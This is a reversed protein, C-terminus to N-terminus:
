KDGMLSELRAFAQRYELETRFMDAEMKARASTIDPDDSKYSAEVVHSASVMRRALQSLTRSRDLEYYSDKVQAAVKAKTASVGLNAAEAQASAEKVGHERKFGDFITWSGMLGIYSADHPFVIDNIVSQNTYGGIIAVSPFYAMKSLKAGATAKIVTQEAEIVDANAAAAKDAVEQLSLHEVLPEPPFLELRTGEPLGLMEALSATLERVKSPPLAVSKEASIKGTEQETSILPAGSNSAVLGKAQIKRADAEAGILEREAALLEFYITEVKSATEAVPMGAKAKAINEDARAVRVHQRVALLPTVPQLAIVNFATENKDIVDVAVTRQNGLPGEFTAVKGPSKNFHNNYLTTSVNPFYLGEVGLRHEKAIKVQLEGIRVMPNNADAALKQARELKIRRVGALPAGAIAPSFSGAYYAQGGPSSALPVANITHLGPILPFAAIRSMATPAPLSLEPLSAASPLDQSALVGSLVLLAAVTIFGCDRRTRNCRQKQWERRSIIARRENVIGCYQGNPSAM